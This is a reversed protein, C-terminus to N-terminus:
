EAEGRCRAPTQARSCIDTGLKEEKEQGLSKELVINKDIWEKSKGEEQAKSVADNYRQKKAAKEPDPFLINERWSPSYISCWPTPMALPEKTKPDVNDLPCDYAPRGTKRGHPDRKAAICAMTQAEVQAKLEDPLKKCLDAADCDSIEKTKCYKPAHVRICEELVLEEAKKTAEGVRMEGSLVDENKNDTSEKPMLATWDETTVAQWEDASKGETCAELMAKTVGALQDTRGAAGVKCLGNLANCNCEDAGKSANTCYKQCLTKTCFAGVDKKCKATTDAWAGDTISCALMVGICIKLYKKM